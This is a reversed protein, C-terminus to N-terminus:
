RYEEILQRRPKSSLDGGLGKASLDARYDLASTEQGRENVELRRLKRLRRAYESKM